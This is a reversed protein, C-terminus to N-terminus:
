FFYCMSSLKLCQLMDITITAYNYLRATWLATLIELIVNSTRHM